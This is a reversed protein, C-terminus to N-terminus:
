RYEYALKLAISRCILSQMFPITVRYFWMPQHTNQLYGPSKGKYPLRHPNNTKGPLSPDFNKQFNLFGSEPPNKLKDRLIM